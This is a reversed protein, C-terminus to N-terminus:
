LNLKMQKADSVDIDSPNDKNKNEEGPLMPYDKEIPDLWKFGSIEFTSIRKGRAKYSKIGIFEEAPIALKEKNKHKGGFKVELVPKYDFTISSLRADEHESIFVAPKTSYEPVFRKLYWADQEPDFFVASIIHRSDYKKILILDDEFHNELDFNTFRYYGSSFVAIIKDDGSFEGLLEGRGDTNLRKTADDFWVNIGGLTSNGKEKLVVKHVENRTIINGMAGRGKIALSGFDLEFVLKKLKPKPKLFVKVIEAEGNPNASFHLIKSNEKGQTINYEKDRTIGTIAFRKMLFPGYKGDRYVVNYITREDNKRFVAIHIIGKGFFAKDSVKTILYRGDRLIVVIDDMDSCDCVYEDKKMGTGFFGDERNVFLKENAEVVQAAQINEFSRIETKREMGKGFQKKLQRFWQITYDTLNDLFNQVEEMEAEINDIHKKAANIDYRSIRKIKIETLRAIDEETVPSRLQKTHPKLGKAIETIVSEWTECEEIKRYIRKEIFIRELSAFHWEALLEAMRIELEENLLNRTRETNHKLIDKVSIFVPKNECIVCANPSYSFECHTFAYLADITKDPSTGPHLHLIIEVNEATNDDIKRIKIKGKDTAKIISEILDNTNTYFPIENIVLTKKDLKNIRARIKVSGGRIGENYKLIDILGGTQFDPFIEFDKGQLYAVSADIIENFNHPMIKSALGVAIGEVGLFLLLPFKVPLTVPEKNRGDYTLKWTTTKPNFLVMNAFKSLRAEIYRPAAARDGTLINGWNGQPDIVLERQGIQVLADGISADGHPHYQMTYGIINAVKNYRGDDLRKMSHFIRRQVPKLGDDIHPVARELIVYSAYDLFWTKYMGTLRTNKELLENTEAAGASNTQNDRPSDFIDGNDDPTNHNNDNKKM